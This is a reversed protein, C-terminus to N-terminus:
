KLALLPMFGCEEAIQQGGNGLVFVILSKVHHPFDKEDVYLYLRRSIPYKGQMANEKNAPVGNVTLPKVEHNLLSRSIYGIAEPHEAVYAIVGSNSNQVVAGTKVDKSKMVVQKWIEGTGSPADRNVVEIPKSAGGVSEWSKISGTYIGQLQALSLTNVPNTPHVIPVIMDDAFPFGKIQIGKSEAHSFMETPIPSSSMAVNCKGDILESIGKMSGGDSIRIRVDVKKSYIESIKRMYPFITTSGTVYVKPPEQKTCGAIMCGMIFILFGFAFIKLRYM